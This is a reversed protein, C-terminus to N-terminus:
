GNEHMYRFAAALDYAVVMREVFLQRLEVKNAGRGLFGGKFKNRTERWSQARVALTDYLRDMVIFFHADVYDSTSVARM